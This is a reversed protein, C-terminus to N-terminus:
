VLCRVSTSTTNYFYSTAVSTIPDILQVLDADSSAAAGLFGAQNNVGFATGFTWNPRIRFTTTGNTIGATLNDRLTISNATTATIPSMVGASAGNLLELYFNPVAGAGPGFQGATFSNASFTIVTAGGVTSAGQGSASPVVAQYNVPRAMSLAIFTTAPTAASGGKAPITIFGVPDTFVSQAGLSAVSAAAMLVLPLFKPSSKM